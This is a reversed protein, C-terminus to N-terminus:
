GPGRSTQPGRRRGYIYLVGFHVMKFFFNLIKEGSPGRSFTQAGVSFTKRAGSHSEVHRSPCCNESSSLKSGSVFHVAM